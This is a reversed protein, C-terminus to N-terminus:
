RTARRRRAAPRALIPLLGALIPALGAVVFVSWDGITSALAGAFISGLPIGGWTAFRYAANVRGFLSAPISEHRRSISFVNWIVVILGCLALAIALVVPSPVAMVIYLVGILPPGVKVIWRVREVNMRHMLVGGVFSGIALASLILGYAVEGLQLPGPAIVWLPLITLMMSYSLNNAGATLALQLLDPRRRFYRFGIRLGTSTVRTGRSAAAGHKAHERRVAPLSVLVFAVVALVVAVMTSGSASWAVLFGAAAPALFQALLIQATQMISNARGLQDRPVMSRVSSQSAMDIVNGITQLLFALVVLEWYGLVGSATLVCLVLAAPVRLASATTLVALGPYRDIVVGVPLTAVLWPLRVALGVIAILWPDTTLTLAILPIGVFILGDALDSSMLSSQFYVYGKAFRTPQKETTESLIM